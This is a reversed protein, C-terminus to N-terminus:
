KSRRRKPSSTRGPETEGEEVDGRGLLMGKMASVIRVVDNSSMSEGSALPGSMALAIAGVAVLLATVVMSGGYLVCSIGGGLCGVACTGVVVKLGRRMRNNRRKEQEDPDRNKVDIIADAMRMFNEVRQDEFKQAAALMRESVEVINDTDKSKQILQVLLVNVDVHAGEQRIAELIEPLIADQTSKKALELASKKDDDGKDM